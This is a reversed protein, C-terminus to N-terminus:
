PVWISSTVSNNVSPAMGELFIGKEGKPPQQCPSSGWRFTNTKTMGYEPLVLSSKVSHKLRPKGYIFAGGGKERWKKTQQCPFAVGLIASM